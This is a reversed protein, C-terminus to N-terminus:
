EGVGILVWLDIPTDISCSRFATLLELTLPISESFHSRLQNFLIVNEERVLLLGVERSFGVESSDPLVVALMGETKFEGLNNFVASYRCRIGFSEM